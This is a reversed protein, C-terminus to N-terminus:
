GHFFTRKTSITGDFDFVKIREGDDVKMESPYVPRPSSPSSSQPVPMENKMVRHGHHFVTLSPSQPTRREVHPMENHKGVAPMPLIPVSSKEVPKANGIPQLGLSSMGHPSPSVAPPTERATAQRTEVKPVALKGNNVIANTPTPLIRGAEQKPMVVGPVPQKATPTAPELKPVATKTKIEKPPSALQRDVNASNQTTAIRTAVPMKPAIMRSAQITPMPKLTVPLPTLPRNEATGESGPVPELRRQEIDPM